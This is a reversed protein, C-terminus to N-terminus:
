GWQRLFCLGSSTLALLDIWQQVMFLSRYKVSRFMDLLARLM